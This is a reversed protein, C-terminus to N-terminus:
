CHRSKSFGGQKVNERFRSMMNGAKRYRGVVYTCTMRGRKTTARGVGLELSGAWVVQTFHGTGSTYRGYNFNYGPKCVENYWMDTAGKGTLARGCSMALNEGDGNRSHQLSGMRALKQAYARASASMEANLKMPPADHRSRYKNHAALANQEFESDAEKDRSQSGFGSNPYGLAHNLFLIGALIKCYKMM